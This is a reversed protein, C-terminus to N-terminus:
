GNMRSLRANLRCAAYAAGQNQQCLGTLRRPVLRLGVGVRLM